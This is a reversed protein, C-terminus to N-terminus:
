RRCAVRFSAINARQAQNALFLRMKRDDLTSAIVRLQPAIERLKEEVERARPEMRAFDKANSEIADAVKLLRLASVPHTAEEQLHKEYEAVSAFDGPSVELRSALLFFYALAIPPVGVRRMVELGFRDAEIEQQQAQEATITSYGRHQYMVHAYEHATVFLLNSKLSNMAAQYIRPDTPASPPVGLTDLPSGAVADSKFRLVAAYDSVTGQSCKKMEYYEFAVAMDDLFKVSAIPIVVERVAPDSYYELPSRTLGVIPLSLTVSAAKQRESPTLSALINREWMWRLNPAYIRGAEQLEQKSYLRAVDQAQADACSLPLGLQLVATIAILKRAKWNM